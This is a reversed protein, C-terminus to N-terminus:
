ENRDPLSRDQRVERQWEVPDSVQCFANGAALKELVQAMKQGRSESDLSSYEELITVEVNISRDGIEPSRDIWELNNQKLVAKFTRLM